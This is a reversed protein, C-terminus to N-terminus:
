SGVTGLTGPRRAGRTAATLHLWGLVVMVVLQMRECDLWHNDTRTVEDGKVTRYTRPQWRAVSVRRGRVLALDEKREESTLSDTYYAPEDGAILWAPYGDLQEIHSYLLDAFWPQNWVWAQRLGCLRRVKEATDAKIVAYPNSPAMTGSGLISMRKRPDRACWQRIAPQMPGNASDIAVVDIERNVGAIPWSRRVLQDLEAFGIAKGSDIKRSSGDQSWARLVWPFWSREAVIGQQDVTLILRWAPHPSQGLQYGADNAILQGLQETTAAASRIVWPIAQWGNAYSQRDEDTGRDATRGTALFQGLTIFHSYLGNIWFSRHIGSPQAVDTLRGDPLRIANPTWTGTGDLDQTWVGPVWGGATSWGRQACAALVLRHVTDTGIGVTCTPCHWHVADDMQMQDPSLDDSRPKLCAHDLWHHARCHPCAIHLREHSGACLLQWGHSSVTTPTTTGLWLRDVPFSKQRDGMMGIPSGEGEGKKASQVSQPLADFEDPLLVPLDLRRLDQAVSGNLFHLHMLDLDWAKSGLREERAGRGSPLLRDLRPSKAFLGTLKTQAFSRATDHTPLVIGIDRPHNAAIWALTPALLGWTKGVQTACVITIREIRAGPGESLIRERVLALPERWYPTLRQDHAQAGTGRPLKLHQDAWTPIDQTAEEATASYNAAVGTMLDQESLTLRM